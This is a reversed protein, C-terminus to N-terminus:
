FITGKDTNTLFLVNKWFAIGNAGLGEPSATAPPRRQHTDETTGRM